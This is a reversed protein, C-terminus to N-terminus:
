VCVFCAAEKGEEISIRKQEPCMRQSTVVSRTCARCLTKIRKKKRQKLRFICRPPQIPSFIEGSQWSRMDCRRDDDEDQQSLGRKGERQSLSLDKKGELCVARENTGKETRFFNGVLSSQAETLKLFRLIPPALSLIPEQFLSQPREYVLFPNGINNFRVFYVYHKVLM